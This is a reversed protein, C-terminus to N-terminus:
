VRWGLAAASACRTTDYSVFCGIKNKAQEAAALHLAVLARNPPSFAHRASRLVDPATPLPRIGALPEDAELAPIGQRHCVCTAWHAASRKLRAAALEFPVVAVSREGARRDAAQGGSFWGSLHDGQRTPRQACLKRDARAAHGGCARAQAKAAPPLDAAAYCGAHHPLYIRGLRLRALSISRRAQEACAGV